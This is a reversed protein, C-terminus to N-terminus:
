KVQFQVTHVTPDAGAKFRLLYTGTAYGKTSLNFIYSGGSFRFNNDPNANGSDQVQSATNTSIRVVNLATVLISSSSLNAGSSNTLQVKIPLTSGSKVPKTQDFGAVVGYLPTLKAIVFPSLSDVRACVTRTSFDAAPTDPSLITRDILFGGEGHLIRLSDFTAQDAVSSDVFCVTIPGTYNATTTIEFALSDGTLLYQGPLTGASNPDIPMVNTQGAQAVNSFTVQVTGITVTVDTGAPTNFAAQPGWSPRDDQAPDNTVRTQNNGDADMVYIEGQDGDRTSSFAIKSGDPSWSPGTNDVGFSTNTIRTQNSGDANMTFVEYHGPAFSHYAIKSGDPSWSPNRDAFFTNSLNVPNSGDANMLYIQANGSSVNKTFVIKSGDPSWDPFDDQTTGDSLKIENTGDVNIAYIQSAGGFAIKSGDPSWSPNYDNRASNTLRHQNSGDANMLWIQFSGGTAMSFAIQSGDPSFAPDEAHTFVSTLTTLNSGDEDITAIQEPQTCCNFHTFAIRGNLPPDPEVVRVPQATVKLPVRLARTKQAIPGGFLIAIVALVLLSRAINITKM